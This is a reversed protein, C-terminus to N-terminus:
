FLTKHNQTGNHQSDSIRLTTNKLATQRSAVRDSHLSFNYTWHLWCLQKLLTPCKSTELCLLLPHSGWIKYEYKTIDCSYSVLIGCSHIQYIINM